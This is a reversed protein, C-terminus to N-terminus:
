SFDYILMVTLKLIIQRDVEGSVLGTCRPLLALAVAAAYLGPYLRDRLYPATSNSPDRGSRWGAFVAGLPSRM